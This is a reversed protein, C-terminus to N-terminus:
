VGTTVFRELVQIIKISSTKRGRVITSSGLEMIDAGNDFSQATSM